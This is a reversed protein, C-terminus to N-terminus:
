KVQKKNNGDKMEIFISISSYKKPVYYDKQKIIKKFGIGYDNILESISKERYFHNFERSSYKYRSLSTPHVFVIKNFEIYELIKNEKLLRNKVVETIRDKYDEFTEDYEKNDYSDDIYKPFTMNFLIYFDNILVPKGFEPFVNTIM